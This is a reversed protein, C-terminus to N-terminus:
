RPEVTGREGDVHAIFKVISECVTSLADDSILRGDVVTIDIKALTSRVRRLRQKDTVGGLAHAISNRADIAADIKDWGPATTLPVNFRTAFDKRRPWSDASELAARV